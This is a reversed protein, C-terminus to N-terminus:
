SSPTMQRQTGRRGHVRCLPDIPYRDTEDEYLQADLRELCTCDLWRTQGDHIHALDASLM